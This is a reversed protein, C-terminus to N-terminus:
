WPCTSRAAVPWSPTSRSSRWRPKRWTRRCWRGSLVVVSTRMANAWLSIAFMRLVRGPTTPVVPLGDTLGQDFLFEHPDDASAIEIQRARLPSGSARAALREAILPDASRSGCGPRWEPLGQWDVEPEPVGTARSLAAALAQWEDRVFGVLMQEDGAGGTVFLTPVIDLEWDFSVTLETDDLLPAALDFRQELARNGAPDQGIVLFPLHGAFHARLKEIVPLVETCTPCDEKVFCVVSREAPDFRRATGEGDVLQFAPRSM